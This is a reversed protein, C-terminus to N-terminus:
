PLALARAETRLRVRGAILRLLSQKRQMLEDLQKPAILLSRDPGARLRAELSAADLKELRERLSKSYVGHAALREYPDGVGRENWKASFADNDDLALLRGADADLWAYRRRRNDALYDVALLQQYAALLAQQDAPPTEKAALTAEWARARAGPAVDGLDVRELEGPPLTILASQVTGDALVRLERFSSRTRDDRAARSLERLPIAVFQTETSAKPAVLEAIARHAAPGQAALPQAKTALVVRVSARGQRARYHRSAILELDSLSARKEPQPRASRARARSPKERASPAPRASAVASSVPAPAAPASDCGASALVLSAVGLARKM